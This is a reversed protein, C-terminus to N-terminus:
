CITNSSNIRAISCISVHGSRRSACITAKSGLQDNRPTSATRWDREGRRWAALTQLLKLADLRDTKARRKRRDVTISAPDGNSVSSPGLHVV